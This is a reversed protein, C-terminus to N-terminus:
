RVLLELGVRELLVQRYAEAKSIQMNELPNFDDTIIKDARQMDYERQALLEMTKASAMGPHPKIPTDSAMFIFDNFESNIESVYVRSESFVEQLTRYVLQAPLQKDGQTFGVFNIALVGDPNLRAKLEQLSELSMLHAPESGGTFCDHVILDYKKKLQHIEYRADGVILEGSPRYGFYADAAEAVAPDIEIADTKIGQRELGTAIHGGGLGIILATKAQPRFIPLRQTVWQYSLLGKTVDSLDAASITSADSLMFRVKEAPQDVVRVWGYLSEREFLVKFKENGAQERGQEYAFAGSAVSLFIVAASTISVMSLQMTRREYVTLLIALGALLGSLGYLVAKSGSIPLLYFGLLLTGLVSGVTSVAYVSGSLAGVGSLQRASLKIVYPGTMALLTLPVTFLLLASVFAGARLGLPNTLLLVPRTIIPILLTALAAFGILYSLRINPARDATLGGLWYGLALAILTVSILSSWVYLSVGYFPGILRTGLLELVMVAAGTLSVVIYLIFRDLGSLEASKVSKANHSTTKSM